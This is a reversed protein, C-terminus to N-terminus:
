IVIEQPIKPFLFAMVRELAEEHWYLPAVHNLEYSQEEFGPKAELRILHDHGEECHMGADFPIVDDDPHYIVMKEGNMKSFAPIVDASYGNYAFLYNMMRGYLGTGYRSSLVKGSSSFSRDHILKGTLTPDLAKTLSAIAGGLSFGYFHILDSNTGIKAKVWEVISFGDIVLDKAGTFAGKSEGVGRYDFLVLNCPSDLRLSEELIWTPTEICLQFNGNFYIVTPTDASSNKYQICLAKLETKDPTVVTQSVLRYNERVMRNNEQIPGEWYSYFNNMAREAREKTVNHAAPLAIRNAFGDVAYNILRAIGLPPFCVSFIDYAIKSIKDCTTPESTAFHFNTENWSCEFNISEMTM